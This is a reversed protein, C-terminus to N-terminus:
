QLQIRDLIADVDRDVQRHLKRRSIIQWPETHIDAERPKMVRFAPLHCVNVADQEPDDSGGIKIKLVLAVSQQQKREPRQRSSQRM